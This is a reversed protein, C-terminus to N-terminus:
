LQVGFVASLAIWLGDVAIDDARAVRGHVPLQVIGLEADIGLRYRSFASAEFTVFAFSATWAAVVARARAATPDDTTGSARALGLRQGLGPTLALGRGQLTFGLRAGVSGSLLQASGLETDRAYTGAQLDFAPRWPAPGLLHARAGAGWVVDDSATFNGALLLLDVQVDRAPRGLADEPDSAILQAGEAPAPTDAEAAESPAPTNADAAESPARSDAERAHTRTRERAHAPAAADTRPGGAATARPEDAILALERVLGAIALAVVRGRVSAATAGLDMRRQTGSPDGRQAVDIDVLDGECRVAVRLASAGTAKPEAGLEVQVFRALGGAWSAGCRRTDLEIEPANEVSPRQAAGPAAPTLAAGAAALCLAAVASRVDKRQGIV